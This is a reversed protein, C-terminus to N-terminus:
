PLTGKDESRPLRIDTQSRGDENRDPSHSSESVGLSPVGLLHKGYMTGWPGVRIATRDGGISKTIAELIELAFRARNEVSGGYEDTRQNSVDQLFQDVLYGNASHLMVGDFGAQNVAVEAARQFRRVYEKIEPITLPRPVVSAGRRQIASPGVPVVSQGPNEAELVGPEATPGIAWLQAYIFSGKKHVSDTVQVPGYTLSRSGFFRWLVHSRVRRWATIQEDTYIFPIHSLGAAHPHIATAETILLTGPTSARQTYYELALDGHVHDKNARLRTLPCLVVRHQLDMRGVRIPQFLKSMVSMEFTPPTQDHPSGLWMRPRKYSSLSVYLPKQNENGQLVLAQFVGLDILSPKSRRIVVLFPFFGRVQHRLYLTGNSM